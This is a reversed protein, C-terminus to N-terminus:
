ETEAEPANPHLINVYLHLLHSAFENFSQEEQGMEKKLVAMRHFDDDSLYFNFEVM